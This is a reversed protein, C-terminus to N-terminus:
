VFGAQSLLSCCSYENPHRGHSWWPELFVQIMLFPVLSPMGSARFGMRRPILHKKNGYLRLMDRRIHKQNM